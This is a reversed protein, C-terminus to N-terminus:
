GNAKRALQQVGEILVDDVDPLLEPFDYFFNAFHPEYGGDAYAQRDPLYGVSGNSFGSIITKRPALISKFRQGLSTFLEGPVFLMAVQQGITLLSLRITITRPFRNNKMLQKDREVRDAFLNPDIGFREEIMRLRDDLEAPSRQHIPLRVTQHHWTLIPDSIETADRIADLASRAISQGIDRPDDPNTSLEVRRRPNIDGAAGNLFLCPAGNTHRSVEDVLYGCYDASVSNSCHSLTVPHCAFNVLTALPKGTKAHVFSLTLVQPDVPEGSDHRRNIGEDSVSQGLLVRVPTQPAQCAEVASHQMTSHLQRMYPQNFRGCHRLRVTVPGSHTHTTALGIHRAPLGTQQSINQTLGDHWNRSTGILDASGLLAVEGRHDTLHIWRVYLPDLVATSGPSRLTYGCLDEGNTPTIEAQAYSIKM